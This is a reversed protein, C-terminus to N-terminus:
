PSFAIFRRDASVTRMNRDYLVTRALDGDRTAAQYHPHAILADAPMYM